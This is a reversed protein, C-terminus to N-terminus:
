NENIIKYQFQPTWKLIEDLYPSSVEGLSTSMIAATGDSWLFANTGFNFAFGTLVALPTLV